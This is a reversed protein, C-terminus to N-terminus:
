KVEKPKRQNVLDLAAPSVNKVVKQAAAREEKDQTIAPNEIKKGGMDEVDPYILNGEDDKDKKTKKPEALRREAEEYAIADALMDRDGIIAIKKNHMSDFFANMKKKEAATGARHIRERVAPPYEAAIQRQMEVEITTDDHITNGMLDIM